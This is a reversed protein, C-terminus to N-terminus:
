ASQLAAKKADKKKAMGVLGISKEVVLLLPVIIWILYYTGKAFNGGREFTLQNFSVGCYNMVMMSLVNTIIHGFPAPIFDFLSRARYIDKALEVFCACLGFMFYYFPYFGHWFASVAFTVFTEYLGPKKGPTVVRAQVYTNLWCHIQHNWYKMMQLPTSASELKWIYIAQIRDWKTEVKGKDDEVEGNYAIGCAICSADTFCWPTYYM